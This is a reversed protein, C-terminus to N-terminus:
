GSPKPHHKLWRAVFATYDRFTLKDKSQGLARCFAPLADCFILYRQHIKSAGPILVNSPAASRLFDRIANIATLIWNSKVSSNKIRLDHTLLIQLPLM